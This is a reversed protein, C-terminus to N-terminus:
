VYDIYYQKDKILDLSTDNAKFWDYDYNLKSRRESGIIDDMSIVFIRSM